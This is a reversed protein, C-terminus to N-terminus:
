ADDVEYWITKLETYADHAHVSKDRGAFGSAKFGGFPTADNGESFCNISVTGARLKRSVRTARNLNSTYVSAALGYMTKNAIRIAEEETEFEIVSLVPGFIEEQCLTMDNRMSDFITIPVFDGGTEALVREGGCIVKGGEARGKAIYGLVKQAHAKTIMSGVKSSLRLPDGVTWDGGPAAKAVLRKLLEEKCGKQVLLRSGCSCNEGGNWFAAAMVHGAVKDLDEADCFVIQPSKGGLELSVRKLNSEASAKLVLKGVATSGTFGIMDIDAHASMASGCTAGYGPVVNLVGDPVGAAQALEAVRLASLSTLESPKLVVCNGTALAPALKWAAMLLPFNWPVILGCVGLPERVVLAMSGPDTATVQGFLKDIAEAHYKFCSVSAPLDGSLNDAVPKGGEVCDLVALELANEEILAALRLLAEKRVSPYRSWQGADFARRAAAVAADVDATDCGAVRAVVKGTAPNSSEIWLGSKAAVRRGDVWARGDCARSAAAGGLELRAVCADVEAQTVTM